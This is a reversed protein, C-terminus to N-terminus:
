YGCAYWYIAADASTAAGGLNYHVSLGTTTPSYVITAYSAPLGTTSSAANSITLSYTTTTFAINFSLTVPRTTGLVKRGGQEIWGDSWKRYWNYGSRWKSTVTDGTATNINGSGLLSENNLTKITSGSVLPAQFHTEGTASLNSLDPNAFHAEGTSSLNSLDVTALLPSWNVGDILTPDNVFNNTNDNILSIVPYPLGTSPFYWLIQNKAYGGITNSLDQNFTYSGGNQLFFTHSSILNFIGNFDEGFPSEGGVVLPLMTLHPFGQKQSALASNPTPNVPIQNIDSQSAESAIPCSLLFPATNQTAM